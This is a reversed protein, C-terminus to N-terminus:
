SPYVYSEWITLNRIIADELTGHTSTQNYANDGMLRGELNASYSTENKKIWIGAHNRTREPDGWLPIYAITYGADFRAEAVALFENIESEGYIKLNRM